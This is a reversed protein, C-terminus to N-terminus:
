IKTLYDFLRMSLTSYALLNLWDYWYYKKVKFVGSVNSLVRLIGIIVTIILGEGVILGAITGLAGPLLDLATTSPHFNYLSAIQSITLPISVLLIILWIYQKIQFKNM